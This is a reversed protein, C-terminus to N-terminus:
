REAARRAAKAAKRATKEAEAKATAEAFIESDGPTYCFRTLPIPRAAAAPSFLQLSSVEYGKTTRRFLVDYTGLASGDAARATYLARGRVAMNGLKHGAPELRAVRAAWPDRVAALPADVGDLTWKQDFKRNTFAPLVSAGSKALDLYAQIAADRREDFRASQKDSATWSGDLCGAPIGQNMSNAVAQGIVDAMFSSQALAPAALTLLTFTLIFHRM